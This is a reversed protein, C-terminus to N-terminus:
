QVVLPSDFGKYQKTWAHNVNRIISPSECNKAVRAHTQLEMVQLLRLGSLNISFADELDALLASRM